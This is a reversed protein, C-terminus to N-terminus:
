LYWLQVVHYEKEFSDPLKQLIDKQNEWDEKESQSGQM